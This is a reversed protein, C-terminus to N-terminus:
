ATTTQAEAAERAKRATFLAYAREVSATFRCLTIASPPECCSCKPDNAFLERRAM